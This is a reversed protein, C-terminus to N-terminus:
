GITRYRSVDITIGQQCFSMEARRGQVQVRDGPEGRM